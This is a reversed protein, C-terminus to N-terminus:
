EAEQAHSALEILQDIHVRLQDNPVPTMSYNPARLHDNTL